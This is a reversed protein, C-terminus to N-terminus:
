WPWLKASTSKVVSWSNGFAEKTYRWIRGATASSNTFPGGCEHEVVYLAHASEWVVVFTGWWVLVVQGVGTAQAILRHAKLVREVGIRIWSAGSTVGAVM